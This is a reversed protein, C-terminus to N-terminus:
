RLLSGLLFDRNDETSRSYWITKQYAKKLEKWGPLKDWVGYVNVGDDWIIISEIGSPQESPFCEYEKETGDKEQYTFTHERRYEWGRRVNFIDIEVAMDILRSHLFVAVKPYRVVVYSGGKRDSRLEIHEYLMFQGVEPRFRGGVFRFEKSSLDFGNISWNDKSYKPLELTKDRSMLLEEMNM